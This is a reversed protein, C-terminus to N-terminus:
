TRQERSQLYEDRLAATAAADLQYHEPMRVLWGPEGIYRVVVGYERRAGEITVYGDVVDALVREPERALPDGYGAGGPPWLEVQDGPAFTVVTKPALRTGGVFEFVGLAGDHGGEVGQAAFRTRDIM